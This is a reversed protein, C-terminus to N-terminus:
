LGNNKMIQKKAIELKKSYSLPLQGLKGNVANMYNQYNNSNWAEDASRKLAELELLQNYELSQQEIENKLKYIVESSKTLLHIGLKPIDNKLEKTWKNVREGFQTDFKAPKTDTSNKLREIVSSLPYDTQEGAFEIQCYFSYDRNWEFIFNLINKSNRYELLGKYERTRSYGM